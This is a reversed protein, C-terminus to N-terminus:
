FFLLLFQRESLPAILVSYDSKESVKFAFFGFFSIIIEKIFLVRHPLIKYPISVLNWSPYL